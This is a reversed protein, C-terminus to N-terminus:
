FCQKQGGPEPELQTPPQGPINVIFYSQPNMNKLIKKFRKCFVHCRLLCFSHCLPLITSKRYVQMRRIIADVREPSTKMAPQLDYTPFPIHRMSRNCQLAYTIDQYGQSYM